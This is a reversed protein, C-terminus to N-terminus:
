TDIVALRRRGPSGPNPNLTPPLAQLSGGAGALYYDVLPLLKAQM